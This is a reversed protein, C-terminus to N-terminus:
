LSKAVASAFMVASLSGVVYRVHKVSRIASKMAEEKGFARALQIHSLTLPNCFPGTAAPRGAAPPATM